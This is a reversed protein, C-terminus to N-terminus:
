GVLQLRRSLPLLVTVCTGKGPESALAIDGGHADIIAKAIPLGLGTGLPNAQDAAGGRFFREFVRAVEAPPIGIGRDTVTLRIGDPGIQMAVTVTEGPPSYRIANDLIIMLAQRLRDPDGAVIAAEGDLRRDIGIGREAALAEAAVTAREVIDALAVAQKRLRTEGADTRAIFLLDDVLLATHEAQAVIRRLATQYEGIGKAKGRLTVEAEGRIVTLPTRLEHSIDAFLRRRTEDAARLAANAQELEGTRLAVTRELDQRARTLADRQRQLEDAMRNFGEALRAFEDQGGIDIRHGLDGASLRETGGILAAFPRRLRRLLLALAVITLIVASVGLSATLIRVLTAMRAAAVDAATVEALESAIAARILGSFEEDISEELTLNLARIGQEHQGGALLEQVLEFERVVDLIKQELEALMQLEAKEEELEVPDKILAMEAAVLGRLAAIDQLLTERLAPEDFPELSGRTLVTDVFQKFLRYTRAKLQLHGELVVHALRSRELHYELKATSWYNFGMGVLTISLLLLCAIVLKLRFTMPM